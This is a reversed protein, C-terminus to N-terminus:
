QPPVPHIVSVSLATICSDSIDVIFICTKGLLVKVDDAYVEIKLCFFFVGDSIFEFCEHFGGPLFTLYFYRLSLGLSRLFNSM